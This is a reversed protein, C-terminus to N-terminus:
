IYPLLGENELTTKRHTGTGSQNKKSKGYVNRRNKLPERSRLKAENYVLSRSAALIALNIKGVCKKRSIKVM